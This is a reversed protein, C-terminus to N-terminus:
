SNYGTEGHSSQDLGMTEEENSVRLGGVVKDIILLAVVSVAGSWFITVVVSKFQAAVQQGVTDLAIGAGGLGEAACVGTLIAGVIGGVGMFESCM